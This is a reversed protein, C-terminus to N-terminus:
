IEYRVGRLDNFLTPRRKLWLGTVLGVSVYSIFFSKFGHDMRQCADVYRDIM